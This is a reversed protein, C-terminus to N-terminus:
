DEDSEDSAIAPDIYIALLQGGEALEPDTARLNKHNQVVMLFWGDGLIHSADIIGSSEEDQTEFGPEGPKFFAPNHVAVQVLQKSEIGYVYVRSLRGNNGPDEQLVIRGLRDITLNDFMQYGPDNVNDANFANTLLMEISGGAEPRTIDDFRLRWLRSPRWSSSSTNIRGTTVFYYDREMGRRPDWAGDEVRIFQTVQNAIAEDQLQVGTKGSVDGFNHLEFRASTVLSSSGFVYPVSEGTVVAGDVKVKVGYLSGNALGAKEIENGSKQKTGVYMYLESPPEVCGTQGLTKCVVTAPTVNTERGADDNLMVITKDQRFPSSVANEFAMRGLRPLEHSTNKEPGTLVHAFVRGHDSAFAPSTEEGSLFIRHATGLGGKAHHFANKNPLDGSCFRDFTTTGPVYSMTARDWNLVDNPGTLHDRGELVEFTQRNLLWRSVFAGKSGHARPVGDNRGLEHNVVLNFTDPGEEWAGTGDPIGVMRYGGISDGTTLISTTTVGPIVSLVYPETTTSPGTNDAALATGNLLTAAVAVALFSRYPTM